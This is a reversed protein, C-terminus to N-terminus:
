DFGAAKPQGCDIGSPIAQSQWGESRRLEGSYQFFHGPAPAPDGVVSQSIDFCSKCCPAPLFPGSFILNLSCVPRAPSYFPVFRKAVGLPNNAEIMKRKNENQQISPLFHGGTRTKAILRSRSRDRLGPIQAPCTLIEILTSLRRVCRIPCIPIKGANTEAAAPHFPPSDLSAIALEWLGLM